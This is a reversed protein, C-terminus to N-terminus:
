NSDNTVSRLDMLERQMDQLNRMMYLAEDKSMGYDMLREGLSQLNRGLEEKNESLLNYQPEGNLTILNRMRGSFKLELVVLLAQRIQSLSATPATLRSAQEALVRERDSIRAGEEGTFVPILQAVARRLRTKTNAAQEPTMGGLAEAFGEGLTPNVQSLIGGVTEIAVGRLGTAGKGYKDVENLLNSFTALDFSQDILEASVEETGKKGISFSGPQGTETKSVLNSRFIHLARKAREHQESGEGFTDAALDMKDILAIEENTKTMATSVKTEDSGTISQVRWGEPVANGDEFFYRPVGDVLTSYGRRREKGDSFTYRKVDQKGSTPKGIGMIEMFPSAYKKYDDPDPLVSSLAAYAEATNKPKAKQLVDSVASQMANDYQSQYDKAYKLAQNEYWQIVRAGKNGYRSYAKIANQYIQYSQDSWKKLNPDLGASAIDSLLQPQDEVEAFNQPIDAEVSPEIYTQNQPLGWINNKQEESLFGLNAV